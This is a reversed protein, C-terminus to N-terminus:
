NYVIEVDGDRFDKSVLQGDMRERDSSDLNRWKAIIYNGLKFGIPEDGCMSGYSYGNEKLYKRAKSVASFSKGDAKFIKNEKM